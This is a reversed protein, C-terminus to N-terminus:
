IIVYAPSLKGLPPLNRWAQVIFNHIRDYITIMDRLRKTSVIISVTRDRPTDGVYVPVKSVKRLVEFAVSCDYCRGGVNM